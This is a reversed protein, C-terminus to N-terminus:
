QVCGVTFVSASYFHLVICFSLETDHILKPKPKPIGPNMESGAPENNQYEEYNEDGGEPFGLVCVCCNARM